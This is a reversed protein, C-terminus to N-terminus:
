PNKFLILKADFARKSLPWSRGGAVNTLGVSLPRYGTAEVLLEHAIVFHGTRGFFDRSGSAECSVLVTGFGGADTTVAHFMEAYNTDTFFHLESDRVVWIKAGAVAHSSGSEIVHFRFQVGAGGKWALLPPLLYAFVVVVALIVGIIALKKV